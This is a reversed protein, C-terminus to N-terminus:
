PNSVFRRLRLGLSAFDRGICATLMNSIARQMVVHVCLGSFLLCYSSPLQM